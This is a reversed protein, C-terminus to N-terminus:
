LSSIGESYSGAKGTCSHPSDEQSRLVSVYLAKFGGDGAVFIRRQKIETRRSKMEEQFGTSCIGAM